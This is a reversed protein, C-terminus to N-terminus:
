NKLIVKLTIRGCVELDEMEDRERLKPVLVMYVNGKERMSEVNEAWRIHM